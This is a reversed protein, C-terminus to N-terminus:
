KRGANVEADNIMEDNLGLQAPDRPCWKEDLPDFSRGVHDQRKSDADVCLLFFKFCSKWFGDNSM